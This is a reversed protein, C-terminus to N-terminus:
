AAGEPLPTFSTGIPSLGDDTSSVEIRGDLDLLVAVTAKVRGAQNLLASRITAHDRTAVAQKFGFDSVLANVTTLLQENRNHIYEDFLVGALGVTQETRDDGDTRIANLVPFLTVLQMAMVLAVALFLVKRRFSFQRM